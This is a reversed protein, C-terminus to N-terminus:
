FLGEAFYDIFSDGHGSIYACLKPSDPICSGNLICLEFSFCLSLFQWGLFVQLVTM